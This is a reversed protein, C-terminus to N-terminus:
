SLGPQLTASALGQYSLLGLLECIGERYSDVAWAQPWRTKARLQRDSSARSDQKLSLGRWGGGQTHHGLLQGTTVSLTPFGRLACPLSPAPLPVSAPTPNNQKAEESSFTM